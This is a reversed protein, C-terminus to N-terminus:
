RELRVLEVGSHGGRRRPVGRLLETPLEGALIAAPWVPVGAPVMMASAALSPTALAAENPAQEAPTPVAAPPAQAALTVDGATV